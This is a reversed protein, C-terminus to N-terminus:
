GQHKNEGKGKEKKTAFFLDTDCDCCDTTKGESTFGIAYEINDIGRILAIVPYQTDNFDFKRDTCIIKASRGDRTVVPKNPNALYERLNFQEMDNM